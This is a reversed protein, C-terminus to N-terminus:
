FGDVRSACAYTHKSRVEHVGLVMDILVDLDTQVASESHSMTVLRVAVGRLSATQKGTLLCELEERSTGAAEVAASLERDLVLCEDEFCLRCSFSM